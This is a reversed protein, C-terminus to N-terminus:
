QVLSSFYKSQKETLPYYGDGIYDFNDDLSGFNGFSGKIKENISTNKFWSLSKTLERKANSNEKSKRSHNVIVTIVDKPKSNNLGKINKIECILSFITKMEKNRIIAFGSCNNELENEKYLKIKYTRDKKKIGLGGMKELFSEYDNNKAIYSLYCLETDDITNLKATRLKRWLGLAPVGFWQIGRIGEIKRWASVASVEKENSTKYVYKMVYSAPSALKGNKTDKSKIEKQEIIKGHKMLIKIDAKGKNDLNIWRIDINGIGDKQTTLLHEQIQSIHIPDVYAFIHRHPTADEQPEECRGGALVIGDQHCLARFLEWQEQLKNHGERTTKKNWTCHGNDPNAHWESNLTITIFAMILNQKTAFKELGKIMGYTEAKRAEMNNDAIELLSINKIGGNRDELEVFCKALHERNTKNQNQKTKLGIESVYKSGGKGVTKISKAFHERNRDIKNRLRQRFTREIPPQEILLAQEIYEAEDKSKVKIKELELKYERVSQNYQKHAHFRIVHEPVLKSSDAPTNELMQTLAQEIEIVLSTDLEFAENARKLEDETLKGHFKNLKAKLQIAEHLGVWNKKEYLSALRPSFESTTNM